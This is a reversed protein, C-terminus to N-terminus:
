NNNALGPVTSSEPYGFTPVSLCLVWHRADYVERIASSLVSSLNNITCGPHAGCLPIHPLLALRGYACHFVLSMNLIFSFNTSSLPRGWSPLGEFEFLLVLSLSLLTDEWVKTEQTREEVIPMVMWETVRLVEELVGSGM